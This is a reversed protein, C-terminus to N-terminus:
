ICHPLKKKWNLKESANIICKKFFCFGGSFAGLGSLSLKRHWDNHLIKMVAPPFVNKQRM